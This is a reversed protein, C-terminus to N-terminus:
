NLKREGGIRPPEGAYVESISKKVKLARVWM